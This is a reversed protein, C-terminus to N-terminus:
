ETLFGTRLGAHVVRPQSDPMSLLYESFSVSDLSSKMQKM